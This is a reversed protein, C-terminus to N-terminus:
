SPRLRRRLAAFLGAVAFGILIATPTMAPAPADPGTSRAAATASDPLGVQVAASVSVLAGSVSRGRAVISHQGSVGDPITVTVSGSGSSGVKVSGLPVVASHLDLKVTSGPKFGAVSVHLRGGPAVASADLSVSPGKPKVLRVAHSDGAVQVRGGNGDGAEVVIGVDITGATAGSGARLFFDAGTTTGAPLPFGGQGNIDFGISGDPEDVLPLVIRDPQGTPLLSMTLDAAHVHGHPAIVIRVFTEAIDTGDAPNTLAAPWTVEAGGIVVKSPIPFSITPPAPAAALIASPVFASIMAAAVAAILLTSSRRTMPRSTADVPRAVPIEEISM